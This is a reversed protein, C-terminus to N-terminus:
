NSNKDTIAKWDAAIAKVEESTYVDDKGADITTRLATTVKDLTGVIKELMDPHNLAAWKTVRTLIFAVIEPLKKVLYKKPILAIWKM